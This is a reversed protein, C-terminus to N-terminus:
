AVLFIELQENLIKLYIKEKIKQILKGFHVLILEGKKCQQDSFINKLLIRGNYLASLRNKDSATVKVPLLLHALYYRRWGEIGSINFGMEKLKEKNIEAHYKVENFHEKSSF